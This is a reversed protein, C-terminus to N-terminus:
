SCNCSVDKGTTKAKVGEDSDFIVCSGINNCVGNSQNDIKGGVWKCEGNNSCTLSCSAFYLGGALLLSILGLFLFKSKKM